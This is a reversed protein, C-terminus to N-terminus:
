MQDLQSLYDQILIDKRKLLRIKGNRENAGNSHARVGGQRYQDVTGRNNHVTDLGTIVSALSLFMLYFIM